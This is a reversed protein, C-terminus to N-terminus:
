SRAMQLLTNGLREQTQGQAYKLVAADRIQRGLQEQFLGEEAATQRSAQAVEQIAQGLREQAAGAEDSGQQNLLAAEQIAKGLKEQQEGKAESHAPVSFAVLLFVASIIFSTKILKM